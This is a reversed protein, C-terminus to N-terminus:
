VDEVGIAKLVICIMYAQEDKSIKSLDYPTPRYRIVYANCSSHCKVEKFPCEQGELEESM